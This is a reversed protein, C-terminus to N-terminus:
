AAGGPTPVDVWGAGAFPTYFAPHYIVRAIRWGDPTRRFHDEFVGCSWSAVTREANTLPTLAPWHGVAADDDIRVGGQGAIHVSMAGSSVVERHWARLAERGEITATVGGTDWVADETFLGIWAEHDSGAGRWGQDSFQCYRSKLDRIAELDELRRLRSEVDMM